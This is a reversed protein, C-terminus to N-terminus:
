LSESRKTKMIIESLTDVKELVSRSLKLCCLGQAAKEAADITKKFEEPTIVQVKTDLV